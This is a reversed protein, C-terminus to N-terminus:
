CMCREMAIAEVQYRSPGFAFALPCGQRSGLRCKLSFHCKSRAARIPTVGASLRFRLVSYGSGVGMCIPVLRRGRSRGLMRMGGRVLQRRAAFGSKSTSLEKAKRSEVV